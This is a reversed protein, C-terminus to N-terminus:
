GLKFGWVPGWADKEDHGVKTKGAAYLRFPMYETMQKGDREICIGCRCNLLAPVCGEHHEDGREGRGSEEAIYEMQNNALSEWSSYHEIGYDDFFYSLRSVSPLIKFYEWEGYTFSKEYRLTISNHLRPRIWGKRRVHVKEDNGWQRVSTSKCRAFVFSDTTPDILGKKARMFLEPHGGFSTSYLEAQLRNYTNRFTQGLYMWATDDKGPEAGRNDRKALWCGDRHHVLALYEYDTTANWDGEPTIMIKGLDLM